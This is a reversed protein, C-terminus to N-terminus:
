IALVKCLRNQGSKGFDPKHLTNTAIDVVYSM